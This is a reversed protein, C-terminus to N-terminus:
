AFLELFHMVLIQAEQEFELSSQGSSPGLARLLM